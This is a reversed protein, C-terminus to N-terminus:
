RHERVGVQRCQTLLVCGSCRPRTGTCIAKGFPVLRENIEVWYARPLLGRLAEETKGPTSARVYGWRNTVRHLHIAVSNPPAGFAAGLVLNAVKPGVGPLARLQGANAPVEGGFRELLLAAMAHIQRAKAGAFTAPALVRELDDDSLGLIQEPTRALAFLAPAVRLTTEDRTRVSILAALLQEFPTSYGQDRLAFQAGPPLSACVLRLRRFVEHIDFAEKPLRDPGAHEVAWPPLMESM